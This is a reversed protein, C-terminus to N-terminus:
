LEPGSHLFGRTACNYLSASDEHSLFCSTCAKSQKRKAMLTQDHLAGPWGIMDLPWMELCQRGGQPHRVIPCVNQGLFAPTGVKLSNALHWCKSPSTRQPLDLSGRPYRIYGTIWSSESSWTSYPDVAGGLAEGNNKDQTKGICSM